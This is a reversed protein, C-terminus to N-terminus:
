VVTLFGILRDAEMAAVQRLMEELADPHIELLDNGASHPLRVCEPGADPPDLGAGHAKGPERCIVQRSFHAAVDAAAGERGIRELGEAARAHDLNGAQLLQQAVDALVAELM